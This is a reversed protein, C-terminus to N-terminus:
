GERYNDPKKALSEVAGILARVAYAHTGGDRLTSEGTKFVPTWLEFGPTARDCREIQYRSEVIEVLRHWASGFEWKAILRV